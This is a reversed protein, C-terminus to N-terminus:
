EAPASPAARRGAPAMLRDLVRHVQDPPFFALYLTWMTATFTAVNLWWYFAGHMAFAPLVLWRRARSSFLGFALAFEFVVTAWAALQMLEHFLPWQPYRSGFYFWMAYHEMRAGSLFGENCKDVAGWFYIASLQLAILRLAWVNGREPPPPEGRREARRLALWRDVSFSRGCPTFACLFTGTALIRTNHHMWMHIGEHAGYWYVFTLCCLGTVFTSVRSAVGFLMMTASVNFLASRALGEFTLDLYLFNFRGFNAWVVCALLIRLLGSSRSSAETEFLWAFLRRVPGASAAPSM